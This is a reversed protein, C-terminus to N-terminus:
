KSKLDEITLELEKIKELLEANETKVEELQDVVGACASHDASQKEQNQFLNKLKQVPDEGNLKSAAFFAVPVIILLALIIRAFPTSQAKRAM